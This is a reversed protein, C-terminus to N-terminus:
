TEAFTSRLASCSGSAYKDMCIDPTKIYSMYGNLLYRNAMAIRWNTKSAFLQSFQCRSIDEGHSMKLM